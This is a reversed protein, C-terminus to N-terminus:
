DRKSALAATVLDALQQLYETGMGPHYHLEDYSGLGILGFSTKKDVLPLLAGSAVESDDGFLFHIQEETMRGCQIKKKKFQKGFLELQQQDGSVYRRPSAKVQKPDDSFLYVALQDTDLKNCLEDTIADVMTDLSASKLLAIALRQLSLNLRQNDHVADVMDHLRKEFTLNKERLVSVQREILSVAQGSKHPIEIDALLLGNADFFEPHQLLYEIVQEEDINDITAKTQIQTNSM